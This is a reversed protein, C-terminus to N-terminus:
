NYTVIFAEMPTPWRPFFSHTERTVPAGSLFSCYAESSRVYAGDDLKQLIFGLPNLWARVLIPEMAVFTTPKKAYLQINRLLERCLTDDLHHLVGHCFIFDFAHLMSIFDLTTLDAAM